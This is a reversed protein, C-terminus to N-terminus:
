AIASWNSSGVTREIATGTRFAAPDTTAPMFMITGARRTWAPSMFISYRGGNCPAARSSPACSTGQRLRGHGQLDVLVVGLRAVREAHVADLEDLERGRLRVRQACQQLAQTVGTARCRERSTTSYRWPVIFTMTLAWGSGSGPSAAGVLVGAKVAIASRTRSAAWAQRWASSRPAQSIGVRAEAISSFMGPMRPTPSLRM